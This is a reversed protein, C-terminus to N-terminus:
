DSNELVIMMTKCRGIISATYDRIKEIREEDNSTYGIVDKAEEYVIEADYQVGKVWDILIQKPNKQKGSMRENSFPQKGIPQWGM